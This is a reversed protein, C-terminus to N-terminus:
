YFASWQRRGVVPLDSRCNGRSRRHWRSCCIDRPCRRISGTRASSVKTLCSPVIRNRWGSAPPEAPLSSEAFGAQSSEMAVPTSPKRMMPCDSPRTRNTDTRGTGPYGRKTFIETVSLAASAPQSRRDAVMPSPLAAKNRQESKRRTAIVICTRQRLSESAKNVCFDCCSSAAKFLM